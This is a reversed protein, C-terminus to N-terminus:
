MRLDKVHAAVRTRAPVGVGGLGARRDERRELLRHALHDAAGGLQGVAAPRDVLVLRLRLPDRIERGLELRRAAQAGVAALEGVGALRIRLRLLQREDEDGLDRAARARLEVRVEVLEAQRRREEILREARRRHAGGDARRQAVVPEGRDAAM